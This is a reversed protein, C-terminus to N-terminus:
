LDNYNQHEYFDLIKMNLNNDIFNKISDTSKKFKNKNKKFEFKNNVLQVSWGDIIANYIFVM